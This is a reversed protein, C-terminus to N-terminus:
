GADRGDAQLAAEAARMAAVMGGWGHVRTTKLTKRDQVTGRWPTTGGDPLRDRHLSVLFALEEAGEPDDDTWDTTNYRPVPELAQDGNQDRDLLVSPAKMPVAVFDVSWGPQGHSVPCSSLM